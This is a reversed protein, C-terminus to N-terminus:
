KREDDIKRYSNKLQTSISELNVTLTVLSEMARHIDVGPGNAKGSRACLHMILENLGEPMEKEVGRIEEIYENNEITVWMRQYGGVIKGALNKMKRVGLKPAHMEESLEEIVNQMDEIKRILEQTDSKRYNNELIWATRAQHDRLLIIEHITIPFAILTILSGFYSTILPLGQITAVPSLLFPVAFALAGIGLYVYFRKPWQIPFQRRRM